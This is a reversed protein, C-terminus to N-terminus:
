DPSVSPCLCNLFNILTRTIAVYWFMGIQDKIHKWGNGLPGPNELENALIDYLASRMSIIRDAMEKVEKEWENLLAPTRMVEAAIRAGHMPPSSYMPRVVIKLQSDVRAKETADNCVLSFVGVREGYLGM